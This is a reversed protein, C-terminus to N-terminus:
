AAAGMGARWGTACSIGAASKEVARNAGALVGGAAFLNQYVPEGRADVPRMHRDVRIGIWGAPHGGPELFKSGFLPAAPRPESVPLRGVTERVQGDVDVELGGGALGGSAVIVQAAPVRLPHGPSQLEVWAVRGAEAVLRAAQGVQLVLGAARATASLALELRLGPISPPLTPLEVVPLALGAALDALVESAAELGLVAPLAVLSAAALSPRILAVLERRFGPQELVRALELGSLHRRHLGPLDITVHQASLEIGREAAAAPLIAAVLPASFDRYGALGVVLVRAGAWATAMSAPAICTPRLSGAATAILQNAELSGVLQLGRAAAADRVAGVGAALDDGALAYPHDPRARALEGLDRSPAEVARGGWYGLVDITGPRFRLAGNGKGAILTRAGRSAAALGAVLGALGLGVVVVDYPTKRPM